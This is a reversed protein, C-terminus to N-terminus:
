ASTVEPERLYRTYFEVLEAHSVRDLAWAPDRHEPDLHHATQRDALATQIAQECAAYNPRQAVEGANPHGAGHIAGAASRYRTHAARSSALLDAVESM